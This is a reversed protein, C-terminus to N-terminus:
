PWSSAAPTAPWCWTPRPWGPPRSARAPRRAAGDPHAPGAVAPPHARAPGAVPRSALRGPRRGSGAAAPPRRRRAARGRRCGPRSQGPQPPLRRRQAARRDAAPFAQWAQAGWGNRAEPQVTTPPPSAPPHGGPHPHPEDVADPGGPPRQGPQHLGPLRTRAGHGAPQGLRGPHSSRLPLPPRAGRGPAPELPATAAPPCVVQVEAGLQEAVAAVAAFAQLQRSSEGPILFLARM